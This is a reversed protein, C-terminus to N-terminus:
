LALRSRHHLLYLMMAEKYDEVTARKTTAVRQCLAVLSEIVQLEAEDLAAARRLEAVLEAADRGDIDIQHSVAAMKVWTAIQHQLQSFIMVDGDMGAKAPAVPPTSHGADPMRESAPAGSSSSTRSADLPQSGSQQGPSLPRSTPSQSPLNSSGSRESSFAGSSYQAVPPEVSASLGDSREQEGTQSDRAGLPEEAVRGQHDEALHETKEYEAIQTTLASFLADIEEDTEGASAPSASPQVQAQAADPEQSASSTANFDPARSDRLYDGYLEALDPPLDILRPTNFSEPLDPVDFDSVTSAPLAGEASSSSAPPKEAGEPMLLSQWADEPALPQSAPAPQPATTQQAQAPSPALREPLSPLSLPGPGMLPRSASPSRPRTLQRPMGQGQAAIPPM